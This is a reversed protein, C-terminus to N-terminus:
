PTLEPHALEVARLREVESLYFELHDFSDNNRDAIQGIQDFHDAPLVGLLEGWAASSIPILGDNAGQFPDEAHAARIVRYSIALFPSVVEGETDQRCDSDRSLCTRGAWSFRPIEERDPYLEAFEGVIYDEDFDMGTLFEPSNIKLGRQPSAVSTMSAVRDHYGLGSVLVRMDLGGQSHGLLHVRGAGTEALIEDIQAAIQPAREESHGIFDSNTAYVRYGREELFEAIGFWYDVIGFYSETGAMGHLLVLPYRTTERDCGAECTLSGEWRGPELGTERQVRIRWEGSQPTDLIAEARGDSDTPTSSLIEGQRDVIEIVANPPQSTLSLTVRMESALVMFRSPVQCNVMDESFSQGLLIESPEEYVDEWGDPCTPAELPGPEEPQEFFESQESDESQELFESKEVEEQGSDNAEPAGANSPATDPTGAGASEREPGEANDPATDAEQDPGRDEAQGIIPVATGTYEQVCAALLLALSPLAYLYPSIAKM